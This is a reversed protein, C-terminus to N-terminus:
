VADPERLKALIPLDAAALDLSSADAPQIWRIAVHEHPVPPPSGPSLECVFARMSIRRTGYDHPFEGLDRLLVLECGLEERIERHLASAASEGPEIKGGPFEWQLALHKAPPRQALLVCGDPQRIIACVVPIVEASSVFSSFGFQVPLFASQPM